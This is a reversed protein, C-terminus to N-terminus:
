MAYSRVTGSLFKIRQSLLSREPFLAVAVAWMQVCLLFSSNNSLLWLQAIAAEEAQRREGAYESHLLNFLIYSARYSGAKNFRKRSRYYM